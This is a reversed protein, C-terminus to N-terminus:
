YFSIVRVVGVIRWEFFEGVFQASPNFEVNFSGLHCPFTLLFLSRCGFWSVKFLQDGDFLNNKSLNVDTLSQLGMSIRSIDPFQNLKMSCLNLAEAEKSSSKQLIRLAVDELIREVQQSKEYVDGKYLICFSYFTEKDAVLLFNHVLRPAMMRMRDQAIQVTTLIPPGAPKKANKKKGKPM